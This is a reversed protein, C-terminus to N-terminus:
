DGKKKSRLIKNWYTTYKAHEKPSLAVKNKIDIPSGAFKVPHIEHLQKGKLEPHNKHINANTKNALNRANNYEEGELIRFPGKPKPVGEPYDSWDDIFFEDGKKETEVNKTKEEEKKEEVESAVREQEIASVSRDSGGADDDGSKNRKLHVTTTFGGQVKACDHVVREVLWTGSFRSDVAKIVIRKGPFIGNEGEAQAEARQYNM